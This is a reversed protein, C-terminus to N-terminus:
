LKLMNIAELAALRGPAGTVGGGPHAGSGCLLLREVPTMPSASGSALPRSLFIQDMTMAGHFINGGSLGFIHELDPPALVEKGVVSSKFGPAYEEICDFVMQAYEERVMTDWVRGGALHYPTFQTFLLCVHAGPPALTPDLSSPLVMEIMPRTPLVGRQADRYAEDVIDCNECNLHITAHHHPMVRECSLDYVCNECNLHITAHQHPMVRESSATPNALFETHSKPGDLQHPMVRESSATTPWSSPIRSLAMLDYVCNECNLHITAHHHPMVRESSATPNALFQPIRSLAMLDYVCNECNLHITAHHHPMVRDSSATPNALFQPIRSLAMLEYVCNECNLHITAHHHPMVRDSSATPNALFQPIRSLAVAVRVVNRVLELRLPLFLRRLKACHLAVERISNVLPLFKAYTRMNHVDM